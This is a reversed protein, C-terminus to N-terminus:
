LSSAFLNILQPATFIVKSNEIKEQLTWKPLQLRYNVFRM